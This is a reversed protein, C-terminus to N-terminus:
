KMAAKSYGSLMYKQFVLFVIAVPVISIVAGSMVVNINEWIENNGYSDYLKVLGAAIMRYEDKNTIIKPWFYDNWSGIFTVLSVTIITARCLPVMIYYIIGFTGLGDIRGADIYSRDVTMFAQRMMFIFYASVMNPLIIGAFSNVLGMKSCLIYLPIFTVQQPVMLAGVVILFLINKGKFSGQAFGYAALIGTTIQFFLSFVTVVITNCFYRALPVKIWPKIFNSWEIKSPWMKPVNTLLEDSPKCATNIMWYLPFAMIIVVCAALFTQCIMVFRKKSKM